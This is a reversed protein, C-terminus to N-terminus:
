SQRALKGKKTFALMGLALIALLAYPLVTADGTKPNAAPTANGAGAGAEQGADTTTATGADGVAATELPKVELNYNSKTYISMIGNTFYDALNADGVPLEAHYFDQGDLTVHLTNSGDAAVTLKATLAHWQGDFLNSNVANGDTYGGVVVNQGEKYEVDVIGATASGDQAFQVNVSKANEEWFVTGPQKEIINWVFQWGSLDADAKPDALKVMMGVEQGLEVKSDLLFYGSDLAKVVGDEIELKSGDGYTVAGKQIAEAVPNTAGFAASGMVLMAAMGAFLSTIVKNKGAM